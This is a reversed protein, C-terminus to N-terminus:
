DVKKNGIQEWGSKDEVFPIPQPPDYSSQGLSGSGRDLHELVRPWSFRLYKGLRYAGLDNAHAYIWSKKLKLRIAVEEVTMLRSDMAMSGQTIM